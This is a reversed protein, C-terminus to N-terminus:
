KRKRGTRPWTLGKYGAHLWSYSACRSRAWSDSINKKLKLNFSPGHDFISKSILNLCIHAVYHSMSVETGNLVMKRAFRYQYFNFNSYKLKFEVFINSLDPMFISISIWWIASWSNQVSVLKVCLMPNCFYGNLTWLPNQYFRCAAM